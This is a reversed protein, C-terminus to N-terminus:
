TNMWMVDCKVIHFFTQVFFGKFQAFQIGDGSYSTFSCGFIVVIFIFYTNFPIYHFPRIAHFFRVCLLIVIKGVQFIALCKYFAFLIWCLKIFSSHCSFVSKIANSKQAYASLRIHLIKTSCWVGVGEIGKREWWKKLGHLKNSKKWKRWQFANLNMWEFIALKIIYENKWESIFQWEIRVNKEGLKTTAAKGARQEPYGTKSTCVTYTSRKHRTSIIKPM